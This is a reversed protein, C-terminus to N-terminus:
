PIGPKFNEHSKMIELNQKSTSYIKPRGQALRWFSERLALSKDIHVGLLGADIFPRVIKWPRQHGELDLITCTLRLARSQWYPENLFVFCLLNRVFSAGL